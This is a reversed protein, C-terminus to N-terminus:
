TRTRQHENMMEISCNNQRARTELANQALTVRAEVAREAPLLLILLLVRM